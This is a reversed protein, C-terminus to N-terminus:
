KYENNFADNEDSRVLRIKEVRNLGVRARKLGVWGPVVRTAQYNTPNRKQFKTM